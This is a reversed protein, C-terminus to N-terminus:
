KKDCGCDEVSSKVVTASGGTGGASLDLGFEAGCSPPSWAGANKGSALAMGTGGVQVMSCGYGPGVAFGVNWSSFWGNLVSPDVHDLRDNLTIGSETTTFPPAGKIQLGLSPGVAVVEATGRKGKICPTWLYMRYLSAGVGSTVSGSSIIGSWQVLGQPDVGRTPRDSVYAYTSYSGGKLGIPDSEIYKGIAPDFDRFYNYHM